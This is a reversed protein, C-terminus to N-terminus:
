LGAREVDRLCAGASDILSGGDGDAAAGFSAQDCAEIVEAWRLAVEEPLERARLAAVSAAGTFKGAPEGLRDSLCRCLAASIERAQEVSGLSRSGELRKRAQSFASQKRRGIVDGNRARVWAVPVWVFLYAVAPAAVAAAAHWIRVPAVYALLATEGRENGRLGDLLETAPGGSDADQPIEAVSVRDSPLVSLPIAASRAAMYEGRQPDFYPFEIPPIESVGERKARIVQTFRKVKGRMQGALKERPVRFGENLREDDALMPAALYEMSGDGWIDITLEIPDGVRVRLPLAKAAIEYRGVAGGFNAPRGESPLPLVEVDALVPKALLRRSRAIEPDGFIDLRYHTPYRMAIAVDELILPGARTVQYDTTTPYGYFSERKGDAGRKTDREVTVPLPFPGFSRQDLLGYMNQATLTVRGARYAKIWITLKIRAMQGVYLRKQDCSAEIRFLDAADSKRVRIRKEPTQLTKRGVVVSVSPITFVGESEVTLEYSFRKTNITVRRRRGSLETFSQTSQGVSRVTAGELEPFEPPECESYNRVLVDVRFPERAYIEGGAVVLEVTTQASAAASLAAFAVLAPLRFTTVCMNLSVVTYPWVTLVEKEGRILEGRM